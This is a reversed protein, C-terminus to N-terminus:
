LSIKQEIPLKTIPNIRYSSLVRGYVISFIILVQRYTLIDTYVASLFFIISILLFAHAVWNGSDAKFYKLGKKIFYLFLIIWVILGLYGADLLTINVFTTTGSVLTTRVDQSKGVNLFQSTLTTGPGLGFIFTGANQSVLNHTKILKSIRRMGSANDDIFYKEFGKGQMSDLPSEQMTYQYGFLGSFFIAIVGLVIVMKRIDLVLRLPGIFIFYLVIVPILVFTVKTENIFTPIILFPALMLGYKQKHLAFSSLHLVILILLFTSLIGSSGHGLTGTVTDIAGFNIYQVISIPIQILGIITLLFLYKKFDKENLYFFISVILMAPFRLYLRFGLLTSLSVKENLISSFCLVFLILALLLFFPKLQTDIERKKFLTILLKIFLTILILDAVWVGLEEYSSIYEFTIGKFSYLLTILIPGYKPRLYVFLLINIVIIAAYFIFM